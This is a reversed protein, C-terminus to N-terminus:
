EAAMKSKHSRLKLLLFVMGYSTLVFLLTILLDRWGDLHKTLNMSALYEEGKSYGCYHCESTDNPNELYGTAYTLFTELYQGCTQGSPPDFIGFEEPKCQVEVDWLPFVLLAGMLYTFPNLWYLWFATIQQYPILVGCFTTVTGVFLPIILAAFEPNPAYAAIFQAIGTYLLEYLVMELFVPGAVGAALSLGATAYWCAWFLFACILLYPLEAIIEAFCFVVWSYLKAKKERKEFIDRNAIFKPQTQVMVGPAVFVFNFIAFMRNQLDQYGHGIKWYSFGVILGTMIHLMCKNVVYELNRWLQLSARAGVIRMQTWTTAAFENEDQDEPNYYKAAEVNVAELEQMRLQREESQLWVEAWDRGRSLDGSVVDIMYEAPNATSPFEIGKGGGKLLLLQDFGAFLSASPQHITCLVSQGKAALKKLFTLIMFSSQGDLGSTPEDLFLLHPKSVLEVGITLRKRQEVGLGAGAVGVMADEIDHLELLEIIEDVYALKEKDPIHRPQRLLASFELAERVTAQPLHVDLQECYGTTRQFSLHLPHGNLLVHGHVEGESKRAALVDMLTTKGAGSSGMLATLTGAKCYGSVKDLLQKDKGDAQVVYTLDQWSFTTGRFTEESVETQVNGRPREVLQGATVGEEVDRPDTGQAQAKKVYKGGGGPKFLTVAKTTGAAPINELFFSGMALYLVWWAILVGFNRWVHPKHFHLADVLYTSGILTTSGPTAGTIACGSPGSGYDAGYPALQPAVCEFTLGDLENAMLAEVGYYLPCLWRFWAFWPHMAPTYIVYGSYLTFATFLSGAIKSADNYTSSAYGIARFLATVDAVVLFTFLLFAFYLGADQQLGSMWYIIITYVVLQIVLIPLDAITQAIFVASPRYMSYAKHKSLVRRGVFASSLDAFALTVPYVLSVFCVGGRLFLGGTTQPIAYFVSGTIFALLFTTLQRMWFTWKDAWRQQYERIVATRVQIMYNNKDPLGKRTGKNKQLQVSDQAIATGGEQETTDALYEDLEARMRRAVDSKSYIAAFEAPTTPVRGEFGPRIRREELATVATLYDATNAGDMQEFGLAEFYPRADVRPGYYLLRGEAIVTIKDFLDYIANGAQYLSVVNIKQSVDCLTRCIRAYGLATSADLGRTANDWCMITPDPTLAEALSVRKREGGSVGRVYENGVKTKETHPIQFARLLDSKKKEKFDDTTGISGDDKAAPRAAASPTTMRLAYDLTRGVSLNPDHFDEESIFSVEGRYPEFGKTGAKMSGYSVQGEVGAYGGTLSSLTKLFTTCGSGPRGVVLMMEGPKLLGSFDKLLYREGPRLGPEGKKPKKSGPTWSMGDHEVSSGVNSSANANANLNATKEAERAARLRAATKRRKIQLWPALINSLDPAYVIDDAGGLGRISVRDWALPLQRISPVGRAELSQNDQKLQDSYTWQTQTKNQNEDGGDLRKLDGESLEDLAISEPRSNSITIDSDAM